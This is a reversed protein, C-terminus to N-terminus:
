SFSMWVCLACWRITPSNLNHDSVNELWEPCDRCRTWEDSWHVLSGWTIYRPRQQRRWQTGIFNAIRHRDRRVIWSVSRYWRNQRCLEPMNEDDIQRKTQGAYSALVHNLWNRMAISFCCGFYERSDRRMQINEWGFRESKWCKTFKGFYRQRSSRQFRVISMISSTSIYKFWSNAGNENKKEEFPRVSSCSPFHQAEIHCRIFIPIRLFLAIWNLSNSEANVAASMAHLSIGPNWATRDRENVNRLSTPLLLSRTHSQNRRVVSNSNFVFGNSFWSRRACQVCVIVVKTDQAERFLQENIWFVVNLSNRLEIKRQSNM